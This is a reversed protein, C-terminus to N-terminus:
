VKRWYKFKLGQSETHVQLARHLVRLPEPLVSRVAQQEHDEVAADHPGAEEPGPREIGAEPRFRVPGSGCVGAADFSFSEAVCFWISGDLVMCFCLSGNLVMCFWESGCLVMCFWESGYLVMCFWESGYLVM